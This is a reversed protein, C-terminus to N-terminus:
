KEGARLWSIRCDDYYCHNIVFCHSVDDPYQERLEECRAKLFAYAHDPKTFSVGESTQGRYLYYDRVVPM